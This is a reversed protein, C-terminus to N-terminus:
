FSGYETCLLHYPPEDEEISPFRGVEEYFRNDNDDDNCTSVEGILVSGGTEPVRFLHYLYPPITISEGPHLRVEYGAPVERQIGDCSVIVPTDLKEGTKAGNWVEIILDNGGRNIIDEMKSWHYHMCMEQGEYMMLLKEAYPKPYKEKLAINGNRITFLAFGCERYKELGFDTVDWGLKNEVIEETHEETRWKEPAWGAWVPLAYGQKQILSEMDQIIQNIESRKM